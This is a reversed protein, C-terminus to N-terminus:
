EEIAVRERVVTIRRWEFSTFGCNSAWPGQNIQISIEDGILIEFAFPQQKVKPKRSAWVNTWGLHHFDAFNHIREQLLSWLQCFLNLGNKNAYVGSSVRQLGQTLVSLIEMRRVNEQCSARILYLLHGLLVSDINAFSIFSFITVIKHVVRNNDVEMIIRSIKSIAKSLGHSWLIDDLFDNFSHRKNWRVSVSVM